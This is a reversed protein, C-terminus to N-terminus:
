IQPAVALFRRPSDVLIQRLTAERVGAKALMAAFTTVTLWIPRGM